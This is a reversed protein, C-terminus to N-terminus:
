TLCGTSAKRLADVDIDMSKLVICALGEGERLVGSLLHDTDIHKAHQRETEVVALHICKQVRRTLRRGGSRGREQRRYRITFVGLRGLAITISGPSINSRTILITRVHQRVTEADVYFQALVHAAKSDQEDLLGLLLHETGIYDHGLREAEQQALAFVHRADQTFKHMRATENM